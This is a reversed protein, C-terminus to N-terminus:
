KELENIIPSTRKDYCRRCRDCSRGGCNITIGEKQAYDKSFVSFRKDIIPYEKKIRDLFWSKSIYKNLYENSYIIISNGPKRGANAYLNINKSWIGAKLHKNARIITYYNKAQLVSATDGHAEIRLLGNSTFITPIDEKKLEYQNFFLYNCTLKDNTNKQYSLQRAAYCKSCVSNKDKARARCIPNELCSTSLSIMGEMKGTGTSLAYLIYIAKETSTLYENNFIKQKVEKIKKNM